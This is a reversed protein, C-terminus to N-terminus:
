LLSTFLFLGRRNLSVVMEGKEAFRRKEAFFFFGATM